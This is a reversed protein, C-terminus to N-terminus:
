LTRLADSLRKLVRDQGLVAITADLPPTAVQGSVAVRVTMFLEKRSWTPFAAERSQLTTHIPEAQWPEVSSLAEAVSALYASMEEASAGKKQALLLSTDLAPEEFFYATTTKFDALTHLREHELGLVSELYSRDGPAFSADFACLRDALETVSLDRIYQGNLWLLKEYDFVPASATMRELSFNEIMEALPFYEKGGPHSWGLLALYNVLAEPLIGSEQYESLLAHGYRKSMKSKDPNRVIPIHAHVPIEWGFAEYLLVHKPTSSIWEEARIVHSIQMLHDDVVVALHYTPFGDSKLLVQDDVDASQFTIEGRLVDTFSITRNDPVALRVVHPEGQAVRQAAEEASLARCQRDYQPIKGAATMAEKRTKLEEPSCFCPYASGKEVLADVHTKYVPLRDSQRYPGFPGGQQPGEDPTVGAWNLAQFLVEESGEVYRSRDTDEVRLVFTEKHHKAFVYSFLAAYLSGVHVFGTPSPAFRTRITGLMGAM